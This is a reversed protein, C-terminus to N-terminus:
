GLSAEKAGGSPLLGTALAERSPENNWGSVHSLSISVWVAVSFYLTMWPIEMRWTSQRFDVICAASADILGQSLSLYNTGASLEANWRSWYMPVDISTMFMIYSIGFATMSALFWRRPRDSQPWLVVFTAVLLISFFTWISNELVHGLYNKSLIAYWSACEAIAMLPLSLIAVSKVFRSGTANGAHYLLLACQGVFCLEAVTAVSRGVVMSSLQSQVLCVRELDIRPLFSRFACGAVYASALGLMWRKTRHEIASFFGAHRRALVGASIVWLAINLIAVARLATWWTEVTM